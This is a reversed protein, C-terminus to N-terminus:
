PQRLTVFYILEKAGPTFTAATTSVAVVLGKGVVLGSNQIICSFNDAAGVAFSDLPLHFMIGSGTSGSLDIGTGAQANALTTALKYTTSTMPIAYYIGASVGGVVNTVQLRQGLRLEAATTNTFTDASASFGSFNVYPGNTGGADFLQVFQQGGSNYGFVSIVTGPGKVVQWWDAYNSTSDARPASQVSSYTQTAPQAYCSGILLLFAILSSVYSNMGRGPMGGNGLQKRIAAEEADEGPPGEAQGSQKHGNIATITIEADKGATRVIRAEGSFPVIDGEEPEIMEDGENPAALCYLPVTITPGTATPEMEPAPGGPGALDPSESETEEDYM